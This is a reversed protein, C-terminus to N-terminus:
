RRLKAFFVDLLDSAQGKTLTPDASLRHRNLLALQKGSAPAQRWSALPDALAGAGARRVADEAIGQAYDLPVPGSLTTALKGRAYETAAWGADGQLDLSIQGGATALVWRDDGVQLWNLRRKRFLDVTASVLRGAQEVAAAADEEQERQRELADTLLMGTALGPPKGFLSSVTVLEHRTTSGIVDLILCDTKGPYLRTGRGIMQVYLPRSKTARAQIICTVGPDDYGETLVGCNALVQIQGAAFRRLISRRLDQPTTGDLADAPIGAANFAAAFEYALDVGPSFLLARRGAAHAQYAQVTQTPADAAMLVRELAGEDLDGAVTPVADLDVELKVQIARLDSLYQAQIMTLIDREFVIEDFVEILGRKDGREPTATWGTLLPGDQEGARVHELISRYSRAPAHHAEDVVVTTFDPALQELRRPISLTQVSAIVVQAGVDNESAKVVGLDVSPDVLRFKDVAQRVLEDRHVLVLSRGGRRDCLHCFCVTKGTGTPLAILQKLVGRREAQASAELAASQYDRLALATM